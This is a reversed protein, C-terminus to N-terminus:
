KILSPHQLVSQNAHHQEAHVKPCMCLANCVRFECQMQNRRCNKCICKGISGYIQVVLTSLTRM